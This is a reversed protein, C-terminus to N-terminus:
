QDNGRQGPADSQFRLVEQGDPRTIKAIVGSPQGKVKSPYVLATVEMGAKLTNRSFGRELYAAIGSGELAWNVVKGNEDKVDIFVSVHPNAWRYETVTGKLAIPSHTLDYSIGTGHHAFLDASGVVLGSILIALVLAANSLKM